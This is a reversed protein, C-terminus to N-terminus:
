SNKKRLTEITLLLLHLDDETLDSVDIMKKNDVGLLYNTTVHFIKAIRVLIEPSPTREQLEYYSVVSKTLHLKEALEAQTLGAETRLAKLRDGFNVM